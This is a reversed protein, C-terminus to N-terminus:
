PTNTGAAHALGKAIVLGQSYERIKYSVSAKVCTAPRGFKATLERKYHSYLVEYMWEVNFKCDPLSRM